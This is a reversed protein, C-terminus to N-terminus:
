EKEEQKTKNEKAWKLLSERNQAIAYTILDFLAESQNRNLNENNNKFAELANLISQEYNKQREEPTFEESIIQITEKVSGWLDDRMMEQASRGILKRYTKQLFADLRKGDISNSGGVRGKFTFSKSKNLNHYENITISYRNNMLDTEITGIIDPQLDVLIVTKEGNYFVSAKNADAYYYSCLMNVILNTVMAQYKAVEFIKKEADEESLGSVDVGNTKNGIHFILWCVLLGILVGCLISLWDFQYALIM